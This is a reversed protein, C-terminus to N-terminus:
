EPRHLMSQTKPSLISSKIQLQPITDRNCYEICKPSAITVVGHCGSEICDDISLLSGTTHSLHSVYLASQQQLGDDVNMNCESYIGIGSMIYAAQLKSGRFIPRTDIIKLRYWQHLQLRSQSWSKRKM